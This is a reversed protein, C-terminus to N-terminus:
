NTSTTTSTDDDDNAIIIGAFIVFAAIAGATATTLGSGALAAPVSASQARAPTMTTSLAMTGLILAAITKKM